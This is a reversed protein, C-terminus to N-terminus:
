CFSECMILGLVSRELLYEMLRFSQIKYGVEAVNLETDMFYGLIYRPTDLLSFLMNQYM